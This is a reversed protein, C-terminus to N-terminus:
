PQTTENPQTTGTENGPQNRQTSRTTKTTTTTSGGTQPVIGDKNIILNRFRKRDFTLVKGNLVANFDASNSTTLLFFKAARWTASDNTGFSVVETTGIGLSDSTVIIEGYNKGIIVLSLSDGQSAALLKAQEEAQRISDAIEAPTKKGLINKENEQVVEDFNQRVIEVDGKGTFIATILFYLGAGGLILFVIIMLSRMLSRDMKFSSEREDSKPAINISYDKQTSQQSTQKTKDSNSARHKITESKKLEVQEIKKEVPKEVPKPEEKGQKVPETIEEKKPVEIKIEQKVEPKPEEIKPVETVKVEEFVKTQYKGAKALDYDKLIVEPNEEIGVAYQKLYARIYTPIEFNFDGSEMKEFVHMSLRTKLVLEQLTIKKNERTKKLDEGFNKLM